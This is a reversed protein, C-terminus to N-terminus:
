WAYGSLAGWILGKKSRKKRNMKSCKLGGKSFQLAVPCLSEGFFAIRLERVARQGTQKKLDHNGREKEKFHEFRTVPMSGAVEQSATLRVVLQAVGACEEKGKAEDM